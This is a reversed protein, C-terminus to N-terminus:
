SQMELHARIQRPMFYEFQKPYIFFDLKGRKEEVESWEEIDFDIATVGLHPFKSLHEDMMSNALEHLPPTHAVVFLREVERDQVAIIERIRESPTLYLEDLYYRSGGFELIEALGDATEQARLTCSSLILDPVIGRLLLYSGITKISKRGEESIEREYDSSGPEDWGAHANRILYLRKM